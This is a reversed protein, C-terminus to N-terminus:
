AFSADVIGATELAKLMVATGCQKSVANPDYKHDAVFKGKTYHNFYSWLYPSNIGCSYYGLEARLRVALRPCRTWM